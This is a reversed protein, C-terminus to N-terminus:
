GFSLFYVTLGDEVVEGSTMDWWTYADKQWEITLHADDLLMMTIQKVLM